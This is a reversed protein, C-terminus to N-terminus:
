QVKKELPIRADLRKQRKKAAKPSKREELHYWYLLYLGTESIGVVAAFFLSWLVRKLSYALVFSIGFLGAFEEVM